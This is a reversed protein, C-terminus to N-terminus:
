TLKSGNVMLYGFILVTIGLMITAGWWFGFPKIKRAVASAAVFGGFLLCNTFFILLALKVGGASFNCLSHLVAIASIGFAFSIISSAFQALRVEVHKVAAELRPLHLGASAAITAVAGMVILGWFSFGFANLSMFDAFLEVPWSQEEASIGEKKLFGDFLFLYGVIVGCAGFFAWDKKIEGKLHDIIEKIDQDM